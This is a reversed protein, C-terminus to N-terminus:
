RDGAGNGFLGGPRLIVNQNEGFLAQQAPDLVVRQDQGGKPLQVIGVGAALVQKGNIVRGVVEVLAIGGFSHLAPLVFVGALQPIAAGILM